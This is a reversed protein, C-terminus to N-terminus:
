MFGLCALCVNCYKPGIKGYTNLGHEELYDALEEIEWHSIRVVDLGEAM